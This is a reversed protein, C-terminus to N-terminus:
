SFLINHCQKAKNVQQAADWRGSLFMVYRLVECEPKNGDM